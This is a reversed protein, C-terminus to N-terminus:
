EIVGKKRLSEDIESRFLQGRDIEDMRRGEREQLAAVLTLVEEADDRPVVVVGDSDGVIVDGPHVVVGGCSIAVNIEGPGDKDCGGPCVSRSFVPLGLQTIGPVDRVAGDVVLGGIRAAVATRCMLEGFVASTVNGGTAVVIVDGPRALQMAKHVM